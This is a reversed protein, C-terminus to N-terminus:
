QYNEIAKRIGASVNGDGIESARVRYSEPLTVTIREIAETSLAPRGAGERAGGRHDSLVDAMLADDRAPALAGAQKATIRRKTDRVPEIRVRHGLYYHGDFGREIYYESWETIPFNALLEYAVLIERGAKRGVPPALLNDDAIAM